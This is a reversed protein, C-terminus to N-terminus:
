GILNRTPMGLGELLRVTVDAYECGKIPYDSLTSALALLSRRYRAACAFGPNTEEALDNITSKPSKPRVWIFSFKVVLVM